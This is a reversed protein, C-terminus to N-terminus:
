FECRTHTHLSYLRYFLKSYLGKISAWNANSYSADDVQICKLNPNNVFNSYTLDLIPNAGNKLNLYTLQNNECALETILPNKSIDLSTIKNNLCDFLELKPNNSVNIITLENFHCM